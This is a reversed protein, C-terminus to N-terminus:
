KRVLKWGEIESRQIAGFLNNKADLNDKCMELLLQKMDQRKTTGNALCPNHIPQIDNAKIFAKIEREELYIMPRILTTGNEDQETVPAFTYLRGEYLSCLMYTELVDDRHHGLAIKNCGHNKAAANLAGRRLKACLSCPNPEKREEFVIKGIATEEIIYDVGLRECLQKTYSLDTEGIGLTLTIAVLEFPVKSFQQFQRLAILMSMSDKGSVGVAVKDGPQIMNYDAVAKRVQGLLRKQKEFGIM